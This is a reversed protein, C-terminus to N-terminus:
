LVTGRRRRLYGPPELSLAGAPTSDCSGGVATNSSSRRLRRLDCPRPDIGYHGRWELGHSVSFYERVMRCKLPFLCGVSRTRSL